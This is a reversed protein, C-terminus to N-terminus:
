LGKNINIPTKYLFYEEYKSELYKKQRYSLKNGEMYQYLLSSIVDDHVAIKFIKKQEKSLSSWRKSYLLIKGYEVETMGGNGSLTLRCVEVLQGVPFWDWLDSLLTCARIVSVQSDKRM